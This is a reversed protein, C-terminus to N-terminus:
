SFMIASFKRTAHRCEVIPEAKASPLILLSINRTYEDDDVIPVPDDAEVAQTGECM